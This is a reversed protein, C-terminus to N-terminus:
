SAAQSRMLQRVEEADDFVVTRGGITTHQEHGRGALLVTDGPEALSLAMRMAQRRDPVMQYDVGLRCGVRELGRAIEKMIAEPPEDYADDTTLVTLSALRGAVEGLRLRNAADRGGAHGFVVIIRGSSQARLAQLAKALANPTHAFDVVVEFPQGVDIRQLRGRPPLTVEAARVFDPPEVGLALGTTIAALWNYVNFLGAFKTQLKMSGFPGAVVFRTGESAMEVKHATVDAPKRLGYTLIPVPCARAIHGFNPDDVNLIGVKPWGKDSSEGLMEFLRTKQRRYEELSGHFNLHESTLNTFVAVDFDCGSVRDMALAHSSVELVAYSAGAEVMDALLRQLEPAQPTTHGTTNTRTTRGTRLEVTSVFGTRHGVAELISATLHTTTTKGDTGTVGVLCLRRSPYGHLAAAAKALAARSNHVLAYPVGSPAFTADEIIVAAAGQRVADDVFRHGDQRLGRIAVFLCGPRVRRSDYTVDLISAAVDGAWCAAGVVQTMEHFTMMIVDVRRPDSDM